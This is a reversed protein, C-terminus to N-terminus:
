LAGYLPVRAGNVVSAEDSCLYLIAGAIEEPTTWSATEASRERDRRHQADITRVQLINATVGSGRLEQALALLLAEQAAKGVAYAAGRAPPRLASPSSVVIIRGWQNAVLHPVFAKALYFTTWLHQQLMSAVEEDPVEPVPRGGAWGGVLNLLIDARGYRAQVTEAAARAGAPRTLDEAIAVWQGEPLGLEDALTAIREEDQGLLALRTGREGLRRAVIRGLAGTAGAIVAVRTEIAM